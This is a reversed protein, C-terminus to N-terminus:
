NAHGFAAQQLEPALKPFAKVFITGVGSETTDGLASIVRRQITEPAPSGLLQATADLIEPGLARARILNSVIREGKVSEIDPNQLQTILKSILPKAEAAHAGSKDWRALLPLAAGAVDINDPTISQSAIARLKPNAAIVARDVRDHLLSFLIDCKRVGAVLATKSIIRSADPNIRVTAAQRLRDIASPAVSSPASTACGNAGRRQM